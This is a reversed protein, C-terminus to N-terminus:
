AEVRNRGAQKARYLAADAAEILLRPSSDREAPMGAVGLSVTLRDSVASYGHPIGLEEIERRMAEAIVLAGEIDTDPLVVVFEEGGYRAVFDGPRKLAEPLAMAVKQLVEDGARHGYNDNFLKFFDIDIMILALTTRNRASRRWERNVFESFRRRNPIATLDDLFSLSELMLNADELDGKEELLTEVERFARSFRISLLMTQSFMFFFLGFSTLYATQIVQNNHLLDNVIAAFLFIFGAVFIVAGERGRSAAKILVYLAYVCGAVILAQFARLAHTFVLAPTFVVVATLLIASVQYARVIRRDFEDPFLSRLFMTFFAPGCYISAYSVKVLIEWPISSWIHTLYYQGSALGRVGICMGFLSFFLPSPDKRRLLYLGFHYLSIILISGFLFMEFAISKERIVRIDEELGFVISNAPGGRLHHFNSIFLAVEAGGGRSAYDCVRPVWEPKSADACTGFTGGSCIREGDIMLIYATDLDPFSFALRREGPPLILRLRYAAYGTGGATKGDVLIKNWSGPMRVYQKVPSNPAHSNGPASQWHFEWEGDLRVVGDREFNWAGLDMLGKVAEPVVAGRARDGCASLLALSFLVFGLRKICIGYMFGAVLWDSGM